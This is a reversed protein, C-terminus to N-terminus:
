ELLKELTDLAESKSSFQGSHQKRAWQELRQRLQRKESCTTGLSIAQNAWDKNLGVAVLAKATINGPSKPRPKTPDPTRGPGRGEEWARWYSVGPEIGQQGAVCLEWLRRFKRM